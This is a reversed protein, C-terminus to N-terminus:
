LTKTAQKIPNNPTFCVLKASNLAIIFGLESIKKLIFNFLKNM